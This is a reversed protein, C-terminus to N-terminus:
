KAAYGDAFSMCKGMVDGTKVYEYTPMEFLIPKLKRYDIKGDDNLISEEAFTREIKLIFNDFTGTEYNDEVSCEMTLPSASLLPAGTKGQTFDFVASKDLKTGSVKGIYTAGPLIEETVINLSLVKNERIGKNTHHAKVASILIRDHGIIGVHGVIMWNAKGDVMAGVVVLPTPYLGLVSGIDKKMFVAEKEMKKEWERVTSVAAKGAELAESLM